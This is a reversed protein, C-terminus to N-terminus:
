TWTALLKGAPSFKYVAPFVAAFVNGRGDVTVSRIGVLVGNGYVTLRKGQPSFKQIQMGAAAYLSGQPDVAVDSVVGGIRWAALVRGTPSLKYISGSPMTAAM